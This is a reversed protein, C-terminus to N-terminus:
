AVIKEPTKQLLKKEEKVHRKAAISLESTMSTKYGAKKKMGVLECLEGHPEIYIAVLKSKM